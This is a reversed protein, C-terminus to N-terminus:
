ISTLKRKSIRTLKYETVAVNKTLRISHEVHGATIVTDGEVHFVEKNRRIIRKRLEGGGDGERHLCAKLNMELFNEVFLM